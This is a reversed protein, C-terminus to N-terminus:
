PKASPMSVAHPNRPIVIPGVMEKKESDWHQILFPKLKIELLPSDAMTPPKKKLEKVCSSTSPLKDVGIPYITLGHQDFKMRVFNKYNRIGLAGFADGTHMRAILGSLVWYAGFIFGGVLGGLAIAEFLYFGGPLGANMNIAMCLAFVFFMAKLHALAHLSGVFFRALLKFLPTRKESVTVYWMLGAWLALLLVSYFISEAAVEPLALLMENSLSNITPYDVNAIQDRLWPLDQANKAVVHYQWTMVWYLAGIVLSFRWNRLPFALNKLTLLTSRWRSPYCAVMTAKGTFRRPRIRAVAEGSDGASTAMHKESAPLNEPRVGWSVNITKKLDTTSHLFAGGGGATILHIGLDKLAPEPAKSDPDHLTDLRYHSYHHWDGALVARVRIERNRVRDGTVETTRKLAIRVITHLSNVTDIGEFEANLWHPEAICLVINHHVTDTAGGEMSDVVARFYNEQAADLYKSFQIDVGWLWWNHPLRIAWYSRHQQCRWGGIRRGNRELLSDRNQCFLNDFAGLGDYWDHNGPLAFLPREKSRDKEDFPPLATAYPLVFREEYEEHTAQPYCQDGGLILIRGAPLKEDNDLSLEKAALLTAMGHTPGFGDGVDAIYDVWCAESPDVMRRYDYREILEKRGKIPDTAAQMLRQDAYEGFVGSIVDRIGVRVLVGPDYWRVARSVPKANLRRILEEKNRLM